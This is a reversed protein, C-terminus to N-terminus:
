PKKESPDVTENSDPVAQEDVGRPLILTTGSRRAQDLTQLPSSQTPPTAVLNFAVPGSWPGPTGGGSMRVRVQWRGWQGRTVRQDVAYGQLLNPTEAAFTNVYPQANPADLWTFEMDTLRMAGTVPAQIKLIMQGQVVTANQAPLLIRPMQTALVASSTTSSDGPTFTGMGPQVPQNPQLRSTNSQDLRQQTAMAIQYQKDVVAQVSSRLNSSLPFSGLFEQYKVVLQVLHTATEPGSTVFNAKLSIKACTKPIPRSLWPDRNCTWESTITGKKQRTAPDILNIKEQAITRSPEFSGSGTFSFDRWSNAENPFQKPDLTVRCTGTTRYTGGSTRFMGNIEKVECSVDNYPLYRGMGQVPMPLWAQSLLLINFLCFSSILKINRPIM